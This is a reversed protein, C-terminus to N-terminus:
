SEEPENDEPENVIITRTVQEANNGALDVADYTVSFTAALSTDVADGAIVLANPDVNDDVIVAGFEDYADGVSLNITPDGNLTIVPPTTDLIITALIGTETEIGAGNIFKVRVRKTGDGSSSLSWSKTTSYPEPESYAGGNSFKMQLVGSFDDEAYLTLTVDRTNAYDAGGNIVITGIPPTVDVAEIINVEFTVTQGDFTVTLVQGIVPVSSDFGTINDPAITETKTSEDSYIGTVVLGTIDLTDGVNYELKDAPTTIAISALTPAPPPGPATYTMNQSKPTPTQLEFDDFNNDTDQEAFVEESGLIKRGISQANSPSVTAILEFDLANSWGLKDSIEGNPNKLALSNSDSLTFSATIDPYGGPGALERSILFYGRGPITKSEFRNRSILSNWATDNSDKRQLYWEYLPVEQENPNYLEIFRQEVPLIEVESILIKPYTVIAVGGGGSGDDVGSVPTAEVIIPNQAPQENNEQNEQQAKLALCQFSPSTEAACALDLSDSQNQQETNGSQEQFDTQQPQLDAVQSSIVDLKEQIDDFLNQKEEETLIFPAPTEQPEVPATELDFIEPMIEGSEPLNDQALSPSSLSATLPDPKLPNGPFDVFSAWIFFGAIITATFSVIFYIVWKKTPM